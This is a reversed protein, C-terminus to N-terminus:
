KQKVGDVLKWGGAEEEERGAEGNASRTVPCLSLM